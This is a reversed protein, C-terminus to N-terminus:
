IRNNERVYVNFEEGNSKISCFYDANEALEQLVAGRALKKIMEKAEILKPYQPCNHIIWRMGCRVCKSQLVEGLPTLAGYSKVCDELHHGNIHGCHKCHNPIEEREFYHHLPCTSLRNEDQCTGNCNLPVSSVTSGIPKNTTYENM